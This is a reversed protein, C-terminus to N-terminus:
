CLKCNLNQNVTLVTKPNLFAEGSELRLTFDLLKRMAKGSLSGYGLSFLLM